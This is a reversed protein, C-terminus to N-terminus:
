LDGGWLVNFLLLPLAHDACPLQCYDTRDVNPLEPRFRLSSIGGITIRDVQLYIRPRREQERRRGLRLRFLNRREDARVHFVAVLSRLDDRLLVLDLNAQLADISWFQVIGDHRAAIRRFFLRRGGLEPLGIASAGCASEM